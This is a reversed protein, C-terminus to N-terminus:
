ILFFVYQYISSENRLGYYQCILNKEKFKWLELGSGIGLGFMFGMAMIISGKSLYTASNYKNLTINIRGLKCYTYSIATGLLSGILLLRM